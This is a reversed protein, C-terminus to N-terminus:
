SEEKRETTESVNKNETEQRSVGSETKESELKEPNHDAESSTVEPEKESVALAPEEDSFDETGIANEPSTLTGIAQKHVRLVTGPGSEMTFENNEEDISLVTGFVGFNTMVLAGPVLENHIKRAREKQKKRTNLTFVVFLIILGGLLILEM